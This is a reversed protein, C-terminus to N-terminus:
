YENLGVHVIHDYSQFVDFDCILLLNGIGSDLDRPVLRTESNKLNLFATYFMCQMNQLVSLPNQPLLGCVCVVIGFHFIHINVTFSMFVIYM